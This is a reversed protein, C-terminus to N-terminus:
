STTIIGNSWLLGAFAQRVILKADVSLGSPLVAGYFEEAEQQRLSINADFDALPDEHPHNNVLAALRLQLSTTQGPRVSLQYHCAAKTGTQAPNVANRNGGIVYSHFADKM